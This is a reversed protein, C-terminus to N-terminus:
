QKLVEAVGDRFLLMAYLLHFKEIAALGLTKIEKPSCNTHSFRIVVEQTRGNAAKSSDRLVSFRHVGRLIGEDSGFILDVYSESLTSVSNGQTADGEDKNRQHEAPQPKRVSRYAVQFAGFYITGTKALKDQSIESTSWVHQSAPVDSMAAVQVLRMQMTRLIVREPAFVWGGFFGKVFRALIQEDSLARDLFLRVERSDDLHVHNDPNVINKNTASDELSRPITRSTTIHLLSTPTLSQYVYYAYSGTAIAGISLFGRFLITM